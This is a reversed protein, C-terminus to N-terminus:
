APAPGSAGLHRSQDVANLARAAVNIEEMSAVVADVQVMDSANYAAEKEIQLEDAAAVLETKTMQSYDAM